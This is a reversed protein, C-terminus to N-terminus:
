AEAWFWKNTKLYAILGLVSGGAGSPSIAQIPHGNNM